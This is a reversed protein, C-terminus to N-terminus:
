KGKKLVKIVEKGDNTVILEIVEKEQPVARVKIKRPLAVGAIGLERQEELTLVRNEYIEIGPTVLRNKELTDFLTWPFNEKEQRFIFKDLTTTVLFTFIAMLIVFFLIYIFAQMLELWIVPHQFNYTLRLHFFLFALVLDTASLIWILNGKTITRWPEPFGRGRDKIKGVPINIFRYYETIVWIVIIGFIFSMFASLLSLKENIFLGGIREKSFLPLLTSFISVVLGFTSIIPQLFNEQASYRM